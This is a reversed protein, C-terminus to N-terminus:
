EEDLLVATTTVACTGHDEVNIKFDRTGFTVAAAILSRAIGDLIQEPELGMEECQDAIIDTLEQLQKDSIGSM